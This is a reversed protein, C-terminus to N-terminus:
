NQRWILRENGDFWNYTSITQANHQITSSHKLITRTFIGIVLISLMVFLSIVLLTTPVTLQQPNTDSSPSPWPPDIANASTSTHSAHSSALSTSVRPPHSPNFSASTSSPYSPDISTTVYQRYTDNLELSMRHASKMWKKHKKIQKRRSAM